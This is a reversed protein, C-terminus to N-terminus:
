NLDGLKGTNHPFKEPAALLEVTHFLLQSSLPLETKAAAAAVSAAPAADAKQVSGSTAKVGIHSTQCASPRRQQRAACGPPAGPSQRCRM